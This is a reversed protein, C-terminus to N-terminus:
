LIFICDSYLDGIDSSYNFRCFKYRQMLYGDLNYIKTNKMPIQLSVVSISHRLKVWWVKRKGDVLHKNLNEQNFDSGTNCYEGM